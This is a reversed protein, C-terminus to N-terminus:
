GLGLGEIITDLKDLNYYFLVATATFGILSLGAIVYIFLPNIWKRVMTTISEQYERIQEEMAAVIQLTGQDCYQTMLAPTAVMGVKALEAEFEPLVALEQTKKLIARLNRNSVAEPNDEFWYVADIEINFLMAMFGSKYPYDEKVLGYSDFYYMGSNLLNDTESKRKNNPKLQSPPTAPILKGNEMKLYCVQGDYAVWASVSKGANPWVTARVKGSTLKQIRRREYILWFWFGFAIVLCLALIIVVATINDM